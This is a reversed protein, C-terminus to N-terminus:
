ARKRARYGRMYVAKKRKFEDHPQKSRPPKPLATMYKPLRKQVGRKKFQFDFSGGYWQKKVPPFGAANYFRAIETKRWGSEYLEVALDVLEESIAPLWGQPAEGNCGHAKAHCRRCLPVTKTGGLKRPVVHHEHRSPEGCEFCQEWM